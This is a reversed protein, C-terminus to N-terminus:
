LEVEMVLNLELPATDLATVEVWVFNLAPIVASDFTRIFGGGTGSTTGSTIVETGAADRTTAYRVTWTATDGTSSNTYASIGTITTEQSTFGWSVDETATPNEITMRWTQVKTPADRRFNVLVEDTNPDNQTIYFNTDFALTSIGGFSALDNSQKVNLYFKSDVSDITIETSSSSVTTNLGGVLSKFELDLLTKQAFVGEGSGLNSATNAEGATAGLSVEGSSNISIATVWIPTEVTGTNRQIEYLSSAENWHSRYRNPFGEEGIEWAQVAASELGDLGSELSPDYGTARVLPALAATDLRIEPLQTNFFRGLLPWPAYFESKYVDDAM